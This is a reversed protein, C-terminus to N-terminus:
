PKQNDWFRGLGSTHNLLQRIAITWDVFPYNPLWRGSPDNLTLVGEEARQLVLAAVGNKTISGVAFLM